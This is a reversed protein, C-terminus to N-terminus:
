FCSQTMADQNAAVGLRRQRTGPIWFEMLRWNTEDDAFDKADVEKTVKTLKSASAWLKTLLIGSM